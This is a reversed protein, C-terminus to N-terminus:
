FNYKNFKLYLGVLGEYLGVDGEYLGVEGDYLGVDGDYTNILKKLQIYCTELNVLTHDIKLNKGGINHFM